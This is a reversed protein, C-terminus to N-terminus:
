GGGLRRWVDRTFAADLEALLEDARDLVDLGTAARSTTPVDPDAAPEVPLDGRMRRRVAGVQRAWSGLVRRHALLVDGPLEAVEGLARGLARLLAVLDAPHAAPGRHLTRRHLLYAPELLELQAVAFRLGHGAAEVGEGTRLAGLLESVAALGDAWRRRFSDRSRVPLVLWSAVVGVLAGLAVGLLRDGLQGVGGIGVYGHLLALMATVAGAWYAYSVQRAWLAVGMVAFLLVIAWRDGAPFLDAVLTAVATGVLAGGLRLVGKHLVDGRGRNGSCVVYCSLVLWPWHEPFLWRGVAYATALGVALQAAMRTSASLRGPRGPRARAPDTPTPAVLPPELFGTVWALVHAALAWAFAVLAFLAPWLTRATAASVPVPVVLLAIFPLSAITGIRSWTAGYRRIWIAGSLVAVFVAGGLVQHHALLWGVATAALAIVPLAVMRLLYPAAARPRERSVVRGLTLTLVVALVVVDLHLGAAVEIRWATLWSGLVALMTVAAPRWSPLTTGARARLTTSTMTLGTQEM